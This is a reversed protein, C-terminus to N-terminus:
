RSGRRGSLGDGPVAAAQGHQDRHAPRLGRALALRSVDASARRYSTSHHTLVIAPRRGVLTAVARAALALTAGQAHLVDPRYGRLIEAMRRAFGLATARGLLPTVEFRVGSALRSDLPGPAASYAVEVGRAALANALDISVTEAGGLHLVEGCILVRM